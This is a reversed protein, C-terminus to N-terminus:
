YNKTPMSGYSKELEPGMEEKFYKGESSMFLGLMLMFLILTQKDLIPQGSSDKPANKVDDFIKEVTTNSEEVTKRIEKELRELQSPTPQNQGIEMIINKIGVPMDEFSPQQGLSIQGMGMQGMGMQGMQDNGMQGPQRGMQGMGMQGPQRGMQGPQRGMQGPQRQSQNIQSQNTQRLAQNMSLENNQRSNLTQIQDAVPPLTTMPQLTTMPTYKSLLTTTPNPTTNKSDRNQFIFYLIVAIVVVVIIIEINQM